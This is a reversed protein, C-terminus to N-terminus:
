TLSNIINPITKKEKYAIVLTRHGTIYDSVNELTYPDGNGYAEEQNQLFASPNIEVVHKYGSEYLYGIVDKRVPRWKRILGRGTKIVAQRSERDYWYEDDEFWRSDIM